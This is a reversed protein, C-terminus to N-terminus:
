FIIDNEIKYTHGPVVTVPDPRARYAVQKGDLVLAYGAIRYASQDQAPGHITVAETLMTGNPTDRWAAGEVVIPAVGAIESTGDSVVVEVKEAAGIAARLNEVKDDMAGLKRPRAPADGATVKAKARDCAKEAKDARDKEGDRAAEAAEARATAADLEAQLERAATVDLGFEFNLERAEALTLPTNDQQEEM